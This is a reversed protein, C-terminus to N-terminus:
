VYITLNIGLKKQYKKTAIMFSVPTQKNKEMELQASRDYLWAILKQNNHTSSLEPRQPEM